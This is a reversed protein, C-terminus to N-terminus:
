YDIVRQPNPFLQVQEEIFRRILDNAHYELLERDKKPGILGCNACM